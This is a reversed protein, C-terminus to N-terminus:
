NEGGGQPPFKNEGLYEAGEWDWCDRGRVDLCMVNTSGPSVCSRGLALFYQKADLPPKARAPFGVRGFRFVYNRLICCFDGRGFCLKEPHLLTPM